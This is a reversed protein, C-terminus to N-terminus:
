LNKGKKKASKVQIVSTNSGHEKVWMISGDAECPIAIDKGKDTVYENYKITTTLVTLM